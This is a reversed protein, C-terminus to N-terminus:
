PMRTSVPPASPHGREVQDHDPGSWGARARRELRVAPSQAAEQNVLGVGGAALYPARRWRTEHPTLGIGIGPGPIPQAGRERRAVDADGELVADPQDGLTEPDLRDPRRSRDSPVGAGDNGGATCALAHNRERA